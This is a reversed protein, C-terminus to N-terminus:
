PTRKDPPLFQFVLQVLANAAVSAAQIHEEISNGPLVGQAVAKRVVYVTEMANQYDRWAAAVRADQAELKALDAGPQKKAWVYYDLWGDSAREATVAVTATTKYLNQCGTVAVLSLLLALLKM